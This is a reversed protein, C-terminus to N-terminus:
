RASHPPSHPEELGANVEGIDLVGYRGRTIQVGTSREGRANIRQVRLVAAEVDALNVGIVTGVEPSSARVAEIVQQSADLLETDTDAKEDILDEELSKRKADSGPKQELPALDIGSYRTSLLRKLTAYADIVAQKASDTMGAAAGVAVASAIITVPEM